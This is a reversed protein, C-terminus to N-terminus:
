KLLIPADPPNANIVFWRGSEDSSYMQQNNHDSRSIAIVWYCVVKNRFDSYQVTYCDAHGHRCDGRKQFDTSPSEYWEDGGVPPSNAYLTRLESSFDYHRKIFSIMEGQAPVAPSDKVGPSEAQSLKRAFQEIEQSSPPAKSFLTTAADTLTKTAFYELTGKEYSAVWAAKVHHAPIEFDVEACEFRETNCHFINTTSSWEGSAMDAPMNSKAYDSFEWDKRILREGDEQQAQWRELTGSNDSASGPQTGDKISISIFVYVLICAGSILMIFYRRKRVNGVEAGM